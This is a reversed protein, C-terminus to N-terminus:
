AAKKAKEAATKAAAADAADFENGKVVTFLQGAEWLDNPTRFDLETLVTDGIEMANAIKISNMRTAVQLKKFDLKKIKITAKAM